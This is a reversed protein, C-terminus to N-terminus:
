ALKVFHSKSLGINYSTNDMLLSLSPTCEPQPTNMDPQINQYPQIFETTSDLIILGNLINEIRFWVEM